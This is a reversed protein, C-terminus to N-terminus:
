KQKPGGGIDFPKPITFPSSRSSKTADHTDDEEEEKNKHAKPELKPLSRLASKFEDSLEKTDNKLHDIFKLYAEYSFFQITLSDKSETVKYDKGEELHNKIYFKAFATRVKEFDSNDKFFTFSCRRNNLNISFLGPKKYNFSGDSEQVWTGEKLQTLSDPEEAQKKGVNKNQDDQPM